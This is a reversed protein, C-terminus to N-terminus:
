GDRGRNREDPTSTWAFLMVPLMVVCATGCFGLALSRLDSESMTGFVALGILVVAVRPGRARGNGVEQDGLLWRRAV